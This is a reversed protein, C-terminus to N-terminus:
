RCEKLGLRLGGTRLSSAEQLSPCGSPGVLAGAEGAPEGWALVATCSALMTTCPKSLVTYSRDVGKLESRCCYAEMTGQAASDTM